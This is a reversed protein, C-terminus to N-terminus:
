LRHALGTNLLIAEPQYCCKPVQDQLWMGVFIQPILKKSIYTTKKGMATEAVKAFLLKLLIALIVIGLLIAALVVIVM